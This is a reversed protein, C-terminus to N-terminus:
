RDVGRGDNWNRRIWGFCTEAFLSENKEVLKKRFSSAMFGNPVNKSLEM